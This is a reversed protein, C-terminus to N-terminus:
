DEPMYDTVYLHALFDEADDPNTTHNDIESQVAKEIEKRVKESGGDAVTVHVRHIQDNWDVTTPGWTSLHLNEVWAVVEDKSYAM